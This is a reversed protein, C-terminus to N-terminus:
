IRSKTRLNLRCSRVAARDMLNDVVGLYEDIAETWREEANSALVGAMM